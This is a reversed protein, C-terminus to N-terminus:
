CIVLLLWLKGMSFILDWEDQLFAGYHGLPNFTSTLSNQIDLELYRKFMQCSKAMNNFGAANLGSSFLSSMTLCQSDTTRVWLPLHLVLCQYLLFFLSLITASLWHRTRWRHGDTWVLWFNQDVRGKFYNDTYNVCDHLRKVGFPM